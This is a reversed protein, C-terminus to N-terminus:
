DPGDSQVQPYEWEGFLIRDGVALEPAQQRYRYRNEGLRDELRQRCTGVAVVTGTRGLQEQSTGIGTRANVVIKTQSIHNLIPDPRVLIHDRLPRMTSGQLARQGM